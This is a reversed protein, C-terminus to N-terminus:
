SWPRATRNPSPAFGGRGRRGTSYGRAKSFAKSRPFVEAGMRLAEAFTPAGWPVVMFEQIDVNSRRARATSSHNM